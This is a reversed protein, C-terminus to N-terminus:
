PMPYSVVYVESFHAGDVQFGICGSSGSAFGMLAGWAPWKGPYLANSGPHAADLALEPHQEISRDYVVDTGVVDGTPIAPEKASLPTTAFVVLQHTRLDQARILALGSFSPGGWYTTLFYTGWSTVVRQGSGEAFVPGVGYAGPAAGANLPLDTYPGAPCVADPQVVPLHLPQARLKAVQAQDILYPQQVTLDRDRLVRGGVVLVVMLVIVLAAAIMSGFRRVGPTWRRHSHGAPQVVERKGDSLAYAMADLALAPASIAVEDLAAHIQSRLNV